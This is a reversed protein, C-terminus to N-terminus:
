GAGILLLDHRLHAGMAQRRREGVVSGGAQGIRQDEFVGLARLQLKEAFPFKQAIMVGHRADSQEHRGAGAGALVLAQEAALHGLEVGVEAGAAQVAGEHARIGRDGVGHV